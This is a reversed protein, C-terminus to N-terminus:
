SEVYAAPGVEKYLEHWHRAEIYDRLTESQGELESIRAKIVDGISILGLVQDHEVVPLHRVRRETMCAMVSMM